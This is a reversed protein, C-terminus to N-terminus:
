GTERQDAVVDIAAKVGGEPAAARANDDSTDALPGIVMGVAHAELGVALDDHGPCRAGIEGQHAIGAGPGQVAREARAALHGRWKSDVEAAVADVPDVQP